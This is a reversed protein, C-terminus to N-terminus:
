DAPPAGVVWIAGTSLASGIGLASGRVSRWEDLTYVLMDSPVPLDPAPWALPRSWFPRDSSRVLVALDVDSGVGWDGRAYSGFYGVALVEPHALAFPNAWARVAADVQDRRPWRLVPSDWSRSPRM